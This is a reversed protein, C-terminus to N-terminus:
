KYVRGLWSGLGWHPPSVWPMVFAAFSAGVTGTGCPGALSLVGLVTVGSLLAPSPMLSAFVLVLVPHSLLHTCSTRIFASGGM